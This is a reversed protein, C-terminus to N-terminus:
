RWSSQDTPLDDDPDHVEISCADDLNVLFLVLNTGTADRASPYLLGHYGKEILDDDILWTPPVRGEIRNIWKWDCDAEAWGRPWEGDDYGDSFNVVNGAVVRYAVMTGPVPLTSSRQQYEAFATQLSVSVYLAEFGPRNFRGGTQAAGAGSTPRHSWKPTLIRFFTRDRDIRVFKM